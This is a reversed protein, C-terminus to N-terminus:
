ILEEPIIIETIIDLKIIKFKGEHDPDYSIKNYFSGGDIGLKKCDCNVFCHVNPSYVITDCLFCHVADVIRYIQIEEKTKLMKKLRNYKFALLLFQKNNISKTLQFVSYTVGDIDVDNCYIVPKTLGDVYDKLFDPVKNADINYYNHKIVKPM